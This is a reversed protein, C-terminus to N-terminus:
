LQFQEHLLSMSVLMLLVPDLSARDARSMGPLQDLLKIVNKQDFFPISSVLDSRLVEQTFSHLRNGEMPSASPAWFAHKPRSWLSRPLHSQMAKRFIAKTEGESSLDQVPLSSGYEFLKHDLFPLRVEVAHAMDLREAALVYNVFLSKLWLYLVQKVPERDKLQGRYDVSDFFVQYPDYGRFASRFDPRLISDLVEVKRALSDILPPPFGMLSIRRALWPSVQHVREEARSRPRVHRLLFRAYRGWGSSRLAASCFYYGAFLEDAGEGALVVKCGAEQVARSLLFRATGHANYQIMEGHLTAERFCDALDADDVRIPEFHAGAHSAATAAQPSEDHEAGPFVITFGTLPESTEQSALYLVSSSDIGGSLYCGIPVDARMRLRVAETLLHEIRQIRQRQSVVGDDAGRLPYDVDWYCTLEAGRDNALMFHGPPIQRIGKFLTRNQLLCFFLNQYVSECDWEAPVGAAFLAKSESALYLSSQHWAYFLPKIGFRDRASFLRRRREDWLVFAFEGRLQALCDTGSEEYLHILIESDSRSKLFHGRSQLDRRIREFDYFEGSVVARITGDENAMPQSGSRLDIISLRTHGLGVRGHSAIWDHQEDPGRHDLARLAHKLSDRDVGPQTSLISVIGCM